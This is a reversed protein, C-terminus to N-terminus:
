DANQERIELVPSTQMIGREPHRFEMKMRRGIFGAKLTTRGATSGYFTVRVPERCFDPNGSIMVEGHGQNEITYRSNVTEVGLVTGIPLEELNVEGTTIIAKTM